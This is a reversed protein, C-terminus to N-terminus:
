WPLRAVAGAAARALAAGVAAEIVRHTWMEYANLWVFAVLAAVLMAVRACALVAALEPGGGVLARAVLWDGIVYVMGLGIAGSDRRPRAAM